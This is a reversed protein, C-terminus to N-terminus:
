AILKFQEDPALKALDEATLGLEAIAKVAEGTGQAAEALRRTMRQLAMTFTADNVGATLKAAFQLELLKDTALGLRDAMKTTADVNALGAKTLLVVAAAAAVLTASAFKVLRKDTKSLELRLGAVSKGAKKIGKRFPETKTTLSVVLSALNAM